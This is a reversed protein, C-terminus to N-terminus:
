WYMAKGTQLNAAVARPGLGALLPWARTVADRTSSVIICRPKRAHKLLSQRRFQTRAGSPGLIGLLGGEGTLTPEDAHDSAGDGACAYGYADHLVQM